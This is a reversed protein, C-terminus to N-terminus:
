LPSGPSCHPAAPSRVVLVAYPIPQSGLSAALCWPFPAVVADAPSPVGPPPPLVAVFHPCFPRLFARFAAPLPPCLQLPVASAWATRPPGAVVASLPVPIGPVRPPLLLSFSGLWAFEPEVM